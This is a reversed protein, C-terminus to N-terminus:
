TSGNVLEEKTVNFMVGHELSIPDLTVIMSPFPAPDKAVGNLSFKLRGRLFAVDGQSLYDHFAVTDTRAPVLMVVTSGKLAEEYAKKAFVKLKSYPPNLWVVDRSWDQELANDEVTFYKDCLHNKASAAADLTFDYEKDLAEFLWRPTEWTDQEREGTRASSFHVDM